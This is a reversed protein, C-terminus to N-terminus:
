VFEGWDHGASTAGRSKVLDSQVWAPNRKPRREGSDVKRANPGLIKEFETLQEGVMSSSGTVDKAIAAALKCALASVFMADYTAVDLQQFIYRIQAEAQDTLLYKGEIEFMRPEHTIEWGNLQLVRLCDNPLAYQTSWGFAPGSVLATLTERKIAFNWAHSRLLEDRIIPYHLACARGEVSNESIDLVRQSGLRGLAINCISTETTVPM